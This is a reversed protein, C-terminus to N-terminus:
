PQECEDHGCACVGRKDRDGAGSTQTTQQCYDSCYHEGAPANCGCGPRECSAQPHDIQM